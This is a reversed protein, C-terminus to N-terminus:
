FHYKDAKKRSVQQLVPSPQTGLPNHPVFLLLAPGKTLEEELLRSKTGPPQLWQLVTEHNEFVWRCIAESTFNLDNRPFIKFFCIFLCVADYVDVTKFDNTNKCKRSSGCRCCTNVSSVLSSNFRRHLFVTEDETLSIAGAVQKNTVVGFRVVGRFDAGYFVSFSTVEFM